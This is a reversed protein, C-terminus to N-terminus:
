YYYSEGPTAKAQSKLVSFVLEGNIFRLGNLLERAMPIRRKATGIPIRLEVAIEQYKYGNM